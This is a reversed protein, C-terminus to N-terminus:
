LKLFGPRIERTYWAEYSNEGPRYIPLVTRTARLALSIALQATKMLGTTSRLRRWSASRRERVAETGQVFGSWMRYLFEYNAAM